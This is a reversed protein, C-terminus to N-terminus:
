KKISFCYWPKSQIQKGDHSIFILTYYVPLFSDPLSPRGGNFILGDDIQLDFKDTPEIFNTEASFTRVEGVDISLPLAMLDNKELNNLPPLNSYSFIHILSIANEGLIIGNGESASGGNGCINIQENGLTLIGCYDVISGKTGHTNMLEFPLSCNIGLQRETYYNQISIHPSNLENFQWVNYGISIITVFIGTIAFITNKSYSKKPM